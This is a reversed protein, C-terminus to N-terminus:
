ADLELLADEPLPEPVLLLPRELLRLPFLRLPEEKPRPFLPSLEAALLALM